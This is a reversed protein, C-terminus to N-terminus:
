RGGRWLDRVALAREVAAVLKARDLPKTLTAMAGAEKARHLQEPAKGSIAIIKADPDLTRIHEILLVGHLGPMVLDTIVLDPDTKEGGAAPNAASEDLFTNPEYADREDGDIAKHTQCGVKRGMDLSIHMDM